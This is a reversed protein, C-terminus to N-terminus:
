SLVARNKLTEYVRSLVAMQSTAFSQASRQIYEMEDRHSLYWDINGLVEAPTKVQILAGDSCAEKVIERFNFTHPGVIVVRGLRMPELMNQGGFPILSGGVFVISALRYLLGMEGITDALYIDTKPTINDSRSRRAVVLGKELCVKEIEDARQPHRPIIISLYDPFSNKLNLHFGIFIEEENSHTSAAIARPRGGIQNLLKNLEIEDFPPNIASFKLNGVCVTNSAGLKKLRDADEKTQGFCLTFKKLLPEIFWEAKQWRAFSRDSIRGNLLVLPKKNKSIANLMNPWFDSEFWLVADADWHKVFRHAAWPFDVPIYQHFARQPLRKQMLAASTKTGSTVMVYATKDQNLIEEILPLMSLCEGVSAGHLWILRGNPRHKSSFGMREKFRSFDEKKRYLRVGLW